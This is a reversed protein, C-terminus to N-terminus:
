DPIEAMADNVAVHYEVITSSAQHAKELYSAVSSWVVIALIMIIAIVLVMEVLTFGKRTKSLRVM